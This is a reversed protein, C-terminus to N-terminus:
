IKLIIFDSKEAETEYKSQLNINFLTFLLPRGLGAGLFPKNM